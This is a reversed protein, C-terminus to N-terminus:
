RRLMWEMAFVLAFPIVLTVLIVKVASGWGQTRPRVSVSRPSDSSREISM